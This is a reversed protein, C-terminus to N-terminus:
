QLLLMDVTLQKTAGSVLEVPMDSPSFSAKDVHMTLKSGAAEVSKPACWAFRGQEDTSTDGVQVGERYFSVHASAVPIPSSSATEVMGAVCTAGGSTVRPKAPPTTQPPPNGQGQTGTAQQTNVPVPQPDDSKSTTTACGAFAIALVVTKGRFRM